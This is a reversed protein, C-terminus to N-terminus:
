TPFNKGDLKNKELWELLQKLAQEETEAIFKSAPAGYKFYDAMFRGDKLKSCTPERGLLVELKVKTDSM